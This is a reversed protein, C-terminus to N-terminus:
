QIAEDSATAPRGGFSFHIVGSEDTFFSRCIGYPPRHFTARAQYSNVKGSAERPGATFEYRYLPGDELFREAPAARAAQLEAVTSAYGREPHMSSYAQQGANLTRLAGIAIAEGGPQREIITGAQIEALVVIPFLYLGVRVASGFLLYWIKGAGTLTWAAGAASAALVVQIGAYGFWGAVDWYTLLDSWWALLDARIIATAALFNIASWWMAAGLARGIAIAGAKPSELRLLIWIYPPILTVTPWIVEGVGLPACPVGSMYAFRGVQLGLM